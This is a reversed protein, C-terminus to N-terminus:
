NTFLPAPYVGKGSGSKIMGLRKKLERIANGGYKLRKERMRALKESPYAEYYYVKWPMYPKTSIVRGNNHENIRKILDNTSGVYFQNTIKSKLLYVYYM